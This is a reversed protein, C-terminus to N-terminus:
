GQRGRGGVARGRGGNSPAPAGLPQIRWTSLTSHLGRPGRARQSEQWAIQGTWISEDLGVKSRESRDHSTVTDNM